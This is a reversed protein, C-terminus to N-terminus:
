IFLKRIGESSFAKGLGSPNSWRKRVNRDAEKGVKENEKAVMNGPARPNSVKVAQLTRASKSRKFGSASSTRSPPLPQYLRRSSQGRKTRLSDSLSVRNLDTHESSKSQVHTVGDSSTCDGGEPANILSQYSASRKGFSGTISAISLKRIMSSASARITHDGRKTSMGPYPIMDRTWVDALASELRVRESRKPSVIQIRNTHITSYSRNIPPPAPVMHDQGDRLAHTNRIVVQSLSAKPGITGARHLSIRRALTGLQGFVNGLPKIDVSLSDFIDPSHPEGDFCDRSEAASREALSFRWTEEEKASCASLILEFLRHDSEFIVKWSYLSSHCQLGRGNDAEELKLDALNIAVAVTYTPEAKKVTALLLRSRFLMCAMYEGNIGGSSQWTVHLVGCLLIHGLLRLAVAPSPEPQEKFTLRDQLLWTKEIRDRMRPDDTARNIERTTERLRYLVKELERHSEPCDYVPTEKYLDAFLLPYKCIRQIPKILLDSFTLGKKSYAERNNISTLFSALSEIGKEYAQWSPVTKYTSAVDQLMLEYKAGYEEYTFFRKMMKDFVRAVDAAVKPEATPTVSHKNVPRGYDASRRAKRINRLEGGAEPLVDLSRWRLHGRSQAGSAGEPRMHNRSSGSIVQYLECFLEEHLNILIKLDAIYSEETSLLEELIRRRKIARERTGEDIVAAPMGSSDISLRAENDSFRSSRTGSRQQASQRTKRSASPGTFSALSISATKVASVFGMSSYSSSKTHRHSEYASSSDLDDYAKGKHLGPISTRHRIKKRKLTEIWRYFPQRSNNEKESYTNTQRPASSPAPGDELEVQSDAGTELQPPELGADLDIDELEGAERELSHPGGPKLPPPINTGWSSKRSVHASLKRVTTRYSADDDVCEIVQSVAQPLGNEKGAQASNPRASATSVFSGCSPSRISLDDPLSAGPWVYPINIFSANFLSPSIVPLLAAM